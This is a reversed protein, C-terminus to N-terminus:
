SLLKFQSITLPKPAVTMAWRVESTIFDAFLYRRFTM